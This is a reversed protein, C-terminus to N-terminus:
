IRIATKASLNGIFGLCKNFSFQGHEVIQLTRIRRDRSLYALLKGVPPHPRGAADDHRGLLASNRERSCYLVFLLPPDGNFRGARYGAHLTYLIL